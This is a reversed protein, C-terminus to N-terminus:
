ELFTKTDKEEDKFIRKFDVLQVFTNDNNEKVIIRPPAAVVTCNSAVDKTVVCNAGIRVNDGIKVNGIIKSGCGIYVNNGIIPAGCGKSDKLTNSGITVQHFITCNDGIVAGSSIFVGSIGHPFIPESNFCVALPIFANYRDIYKNYKIKSFYAKVGGNLAQERVKWFYNFSQRKKYRSKLILDLFRKMQKRM